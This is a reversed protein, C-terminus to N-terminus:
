KQEGLLASLAAVRKEFDDIIADQEETLGYINLGCGEVHCYNSSVDNSHGRPCIYKTTAGLLGKSQRIEGVPDPDRVIALLNRMAALDARTYEPQYACLCSVVFGLRSNESDGLLAILHEADFLRAERIVEISADPASDIDDYVVRLAYKRDVTAIYEPFYRLAAQHFDCRDKEDTLWSVLYKRYLGSGIGTMKRDIIYQWKEEDPFVEPRSLQRSYKEKLCEARLDDASVSTRMRFINELLKSELSKNGFVFVNRKHGARVLLNVFKEM